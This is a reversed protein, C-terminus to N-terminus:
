KTISPSSPSSPPPPSSSPTNSTLILDMLALARRYAVNIAVSQIREIRGDQVINMAFCSMGIIPIAIVESGDDGTVGERRLCLRRRDFTSVERSETDYMLLVVLPVAKELRDERV